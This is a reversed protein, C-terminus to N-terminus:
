SRSNRFSPERGGCSTQSPMSLGGGSDWAVEGSEQPEGRAVAFAKQYKRDPTWVISSTSRRCASERDQTSM